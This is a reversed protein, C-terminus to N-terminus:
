WAGWLGLQGLQGEVRLCPSCSLFFSVQFGSLIWPINDHLLLFECFLALLPTDRNKGGIELLMSELIFWPKCFCSNMFTQIRYLMWTFIPANLSKCLCVASIALFFYLLFILILRNISSERKKFFWDYNRRPLFHNVADIYHKVEFLDGLLCDVVMIPNQLM